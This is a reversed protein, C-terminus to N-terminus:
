RCATRLFQPSHDNQQSCSILFPILSHIQQSVCHLPYSKIQFSGISWTECLSHSSNQPKILLCFSHTQGPFIIHCTNSQHGPHFNGLMLLVVSLLLLAGWNSTIVPNTGGLQQGGDPESHDVFLPQMGEGSPLPCIDFSREKYSSCEALFTGLCQDVRLFTKQAVAFLLQPSHTSRRVPCRRRLLPKLSMM